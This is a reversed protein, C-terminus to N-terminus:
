SARKDGRVRCRRAQTDDMRSRCQLTLSKLQRDLGTLVLAIADIKRSYPSEQTRDPLCRGGADHALWLVVASSHFLLDVREVKM